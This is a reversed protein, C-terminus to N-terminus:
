VEEWGTVRVEELPGYFKRVDQSLLPAGISATDNEETPDLLCHLADGQHAPVWVSGYRDRYFPM